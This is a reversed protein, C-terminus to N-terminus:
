RRLGDQTEPSLPSSAGAQGPAHRPVGGLLGLDQCGEALTNSVQWSCPPMSSADVM